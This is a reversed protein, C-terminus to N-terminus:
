IAPQCIGCGAFQRREDAERAAYSSISGGDVSREREGPGGALHFARNV